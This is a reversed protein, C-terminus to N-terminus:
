LALGKDRSAAEFDACLKKFRDPENAEMAALGRPDKKTWELYDWSKREDDAGAPGGQLEKLQAALAKGQDGKPDEKGEGAAGAPAERASLMKEVDAYSLMALKELSEVEGESVVGRQVHLAVLNKANLKRSEELQAQLTRNQEELVGADAAPKGNEKEMTDNNKGPEPEEGDGTTLIGLIYDSGDENMLKVANKQGPVTVLSVEILESKTVTPYKQGEVLVSADDSEELPRIHLSVANMYGDRYKWYLKVAEEDNPDFVCSGRLEGNEVRVNEWRGVPLKWTDHQVCAVPNKLFGELDIGEVLLRWRYRNLTNDCIVFDIVPKEPLEREKRAMENEFNKAFILGKEWERRM